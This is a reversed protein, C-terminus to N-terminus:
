LMRLPTLKVRTIPRYLAPVAGFLQSLGAQFEEATNYPLARTLFLAEELRNWGAILPIKLQKGGKFVAAPASTLVYGDFSPSFATLAPDTNPNWLSSNVVAQTSLQRLQSVSKGEAWKIGIQCAQDHTNLSGHESDWWAGSEIIAKDFAGEALPSTMLMGISHAGASEGFALINEPDGGFAKINERVWELAFLQDQLGFDGSPAEEDLEPLALFGFNGLRYNITVLVVGQKAFQTGDYTPSAGSGFEFGGGHIFVM